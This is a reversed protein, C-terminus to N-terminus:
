SRFVNHFLLYFSVIIQVMEDFASHILSMNHNRILGPTLPNTSFITKGGPILLIVINEIM